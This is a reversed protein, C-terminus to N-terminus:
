LKRLARNSNLARCLGVRFALAALQLGGAAWRAGELGRRVLWVQHAALCWYAISVAAVIGGIDHSSRNNIVSGSSSSDLIVSSSSSSDLIVRSSSDLIVSSSSDLIVRSSSDLIVSSSSDLIVSSSSDLIVSSSSSDLIVRSSSDLIVGGSSSDLIVSSSSGLIISGSSKISTGFLVGNRSGQEKPDDGVFRLGFTEARDLRRIQEGGDIRIIDRWAEHQRSGRMVDLLNRHLVEKCVQGSWFLRRERGVIDELAVLRHMGSLLLLLWLWHRRLDHRWLDRFRATGVGQEFAGGRWRRPSGDRRRLWSIGTGTKECCVRSV